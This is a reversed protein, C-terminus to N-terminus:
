KFSSSFSALKLIREKVRFTGALPLKGALNAIKATMPIDVDTTNIEVKKNLDNNVEPVVVEDESENARAVTFLTSSLLCLSILRLFKSPNVRKSAKTNTSFSM